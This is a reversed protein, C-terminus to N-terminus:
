DQAARVQSLTKAAQPSLAAFSTRPTLLMIATDLDSLITSSASVITPESAATDLAASVSLKAVAEKVLVLDGYVRRLAQARNNRASAYKPHEEILEDLNAICALYKLLHNAVSDTNASIQFEAQQISHIIARERQTISQYENAGIIHPDKPLSEDILLPAAPGSEPDKIHQLVDRDHKTLAASAM